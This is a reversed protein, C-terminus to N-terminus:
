LTTRDVPMSSCDSITIRLGCASPMIIFVTNTICAYRNYHFYVVEAQLFIRYIQSIQETLKGCTHLQLATLNSALQTFNFRIRGTRICIWHLSTMIDTQVLCLLYSRDNSCRMVNIVSSQSRSPTRTRASYIYCILRPVLCLATWNWSELRSYMKLNPAARSRERDSSKLSVTFGAATTSERHLISRCHDQSKPVDKSRDRIFSSRQQENALKECPRSSLAHEEM